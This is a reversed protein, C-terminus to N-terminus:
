RAAALVRQCVTQVAGPKGVMRASEGMQEIRRRHTALFRVKEVVDDVDRALLVAGYNVLFDVNSREHGQVPSQLIVPLGMACAEPVMLGGPRCVLVDTAAMLTNM